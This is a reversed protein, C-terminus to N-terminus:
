RLRRWLSIGISRPRVGRMLPPAVGDAAAAQQASEKNHQLPSRSISM